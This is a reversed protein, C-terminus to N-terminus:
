NQKKSASARVLPKPNAGFAFYVWLIAIAYLATIIIFVSRYSGTADFMYGALTSGVAAGGAFLVVIFGFLTSFNATGFIDRIVIPLLTGSAGIGLGYIVAFIWIQSMSNAPILVLMGVIALLFFLIVVYRSILRDSLWGSALSSIAGVGLTIGRAWAALTASVNM